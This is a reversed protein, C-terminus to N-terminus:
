TSWATRILVTSIFPILLGTMYLRVPGHRVRVAAALLAYVLALVVALILQSSYEISGFLDTVSGTINSNPDPVVESVVDTFLILYTGFLYTSSGAFAALFRPIDPLPEDLPQLYLDRFSNILLKM